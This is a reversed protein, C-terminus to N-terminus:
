HSALTTIRVEEREKRIQEEKLKEAQRQKEREVLTKRRVCLCLAVLGLARFRNCRPSTAKTYGEGREEAEQVM